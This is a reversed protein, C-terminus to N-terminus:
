SQVFLQKSLFLCHPLRVLSLLKQYIVWCLVTISWLVHVSVALREALCFPATLFWCVQNLGCVFLHFCWWSPSSMSSVHWKSVNKHTSVLKGDKVVASDVRGGAVARGDTGPSALITNRDAVVVRPSALVTRSAQRCQQILQWSLNRIKFACQPFFLTSGSWEFFFTAVQKM